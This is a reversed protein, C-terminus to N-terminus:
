ETPMAILKQRPMASPAADMFGIGSSMTAERTPAMYASRPLSLAVLLDRDQRARDQLHHCWKRGAGYRVAPM